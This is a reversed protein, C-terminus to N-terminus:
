IWILEVKSEDKQNGLACLTLSILLDSMWMERINLNRKPGRNVNDNLIVPLYGPIDSPNLCYQNEFPFPTSPFQKM